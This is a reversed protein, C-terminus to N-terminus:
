TIGCRRTSASCGCASSYRKQERSSSCMRRLGTCLDHRPLLLLQKAAYDGASSIGVWGARIILQTAGGSPVQAQAMGPMELSRLMMVIAAGAPDFRM